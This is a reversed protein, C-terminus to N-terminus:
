QVEITGTMDTPHFDCRFDITAAADPATWELTGTQGGSILQPDSVTDDDSNYANDEGAIRMNHIATGANDLNITISEGAAVKIAPKKVGEYEFFNDGMTVALGAGGPAPSGGGPSPSAAATPEGGESAQGEDDEIAGWLAAGALAGAAIVVVAGIQWSPAGPNSAFYTALLLIGIAIGAALGTAADADDLALYVRSLGYIVLLLFALVGLPVLVPLMVRARAQSAQEMPRWSSETRLAEMDLVQISDRMVVDEHRRIIAAANPENTEYRV